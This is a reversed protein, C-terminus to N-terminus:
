FRVVDDRGNWHNCLITHLNNDLFLEMYGNPKPVAMIVYDLNIYCIVNLQDDMYDFMM